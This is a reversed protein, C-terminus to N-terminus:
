DWMTGDLGVVIGMWLGIVFVILSIIFAVTKNINGIASMYNMFAYFLGGLAGAAPGVILPRIMWFKGWEPKPDDAGFVFTAILIFGIVAGILMPKGAAIKTKSEATLNEKQTM